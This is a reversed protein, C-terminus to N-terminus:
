MEVSRPSESLDGSEDVEFIGETPLFEAFGPSTFSTAQTTNTTDTRGSGQDGEDKSSSEVCVQLAPTSEARWQDQLQQRERDRQAEAARQANYKSAARPSRLFFAPSPNYNLSDYVGSISEQGLHAMPQMFPQPSSNAVFAVAEPPPTWACVTENSHAATSSNPAHGAPSRTLGGPYSNRPKSASDPKLAASASKNSARAGNTSKPAGGESARRNTTPNNPPTPPFFSASSGMPSVAGDPSSRPSPVKRLPHLNNSKTQVTGNPSFHSGAGKGAGQSLRSNTPTTSRNGSGNSSISNTSSGHPSRSPLSVPVVNLNAKSPTRTSGQWAPGASSPGPLNAAGKITLRNVSASPSKARSTPAPSKSRAAAPAPSKARTSTTNAPSKVGTTPGLSSRSSLSSTSSGQYGKNPPSKTLPTYAPASVTSGFSSRTRPPEKSQSQASANNTGSKWKGIPQQWKTAGAPEGRSNTTSTPTTTRTGRSPSRGGSQQAGPPTLSFGSGSSHSGSVSGTSSNGRPTSTSRLRLRGRETHEVLPSPPPEPAGLTVDIPPPVSAAGLRGSRGFTGTPTRARPRPNRDDKSNLLQAVVPNQALSSATMRAPRIPADDHNATAQTPIEVPAVAPARTYRSYLRSPPEDYAPPSEQTAPANSSSPADNAVRYRRSMIDKMPYLDLTRSPQQPKEPSAPLEQQPSMVSSAVARPIGTPTRTASRAIEANNQSPQQDEAATNNAVAASEIHSNNEIKTPSGRQLNASGSRGPIQSKLAETFPNYRRKPEAPKAPSTEQVAKPSPPKQPTFLVESPETKVLLSSMSAVPSVAQEKPPRIRQVAGHSEISTVSAGDSIYDSDPDIQLRNHSKKLLSNQTSSSAALQANVKSRRNNRHMRSASSTTSVSSLSDNDDESQRSYSISRPISRLERNPGGPSGSASDYYNFVLPSESVDTPLNGFVVSEMESVDLSDASESRISWLREDEHADTPPLEKLRGQMSNLMSSLKSTSLHEGGGAWLDAEKNEFSALLNRNQLFNNALSQGIADDNRNFRKEEQMRMTM